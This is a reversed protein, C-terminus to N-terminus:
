DSQTFLEQFQDLRWRWAVMRMFERYSTTSSKLDRLEQGLDVGQEGAAGGPDAAYSGHFAFYAQNLRRIQYGNDWFFIRRAEMYDEAQEIKGEALLRDV